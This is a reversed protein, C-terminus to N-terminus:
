GRSRSRIVSSAPAWERPSRKNSVNMWGTSSERPQILLQNPLAKKWVRISHIPPTLSSTSSFPIVSYPGSAALRKSVMLQRPYSMRTGGRSMWNSTLLRRPNSSRTLFIVCLRIKQSMAIRLFMSGYSAHSCDPSATSCRFCLTWGGKRRLRETPPYMDLRRSM